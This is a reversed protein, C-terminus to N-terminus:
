ARPSLRDSTTAVIGMITGEITLDAPRRQSVSAIIVPIQLAKLPFNGDYM